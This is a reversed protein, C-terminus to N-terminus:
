VGARCNWKLRYLKTYEPPVRPKLNGCSQCIIYTNVSEHARAAQKIFHFKRAEKQINEIEEVSNKPKSTKM